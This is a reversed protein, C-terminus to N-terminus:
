AKPKPRFLSATHGVEGCVASHSASAIQELWAKRTAKDPAEIRLKILGDRLLATNVAALVSATVGSRGVMVAPKLNMAQGRYAKREASSLEPAPPLNM